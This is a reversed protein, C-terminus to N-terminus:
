QDYDFSANALSIWVGYHQIHIIGNKIKFGGVGHAYGRRHLAHVVANLRNRTTPTHWDCDAFNVGTIAKVTNNGEGTWVDGIRITALTQGYLKVSVKNDTVTVTTNSTKLDTLNAIADSVQEDIKRHLLIM